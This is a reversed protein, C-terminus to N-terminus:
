RGHFIGARIAVAKPPASPDLDLSTRVQPMMVVKGNLTVTQGDRRVVIPLDQGEHGRYRARFAPAWDGRTRIDGVSILLDGPRIGAAEGAGGPVLSTVRVGNSDLATGVGMRPERTTDATFSLGALKFVQAYPYPDRGDVYHAYFDDFPRGGAEARVAGWWENSGFGRGGRKYTSDYVDRMVKDLSHRNDSADRIIIDLMLGALSGKPYYIYGTGDKPHIWTSLSADELAVPPTASVTEIKGQTTRLFAMSDVIGGRLLALDAYYDTIGESVWLWPTPESRDYRYPVMDAPRMRKVNWAHFIEHATIGGLLPTGMLLPTYVGVHSAQHELASGGGFSSDFIVMTTYVDWPTEAFVASEVPIAKAMQDWLAHRALGQLLGAPYSALRTWKGNIQTSDLDVKGIFFPMDVLDHYNRERYTRPAGAPHMSTVVLWDPQTNVTVSAPFDLPQGEPYPFVNTGNVLLFDPRSWAMANDLTDSIYNFRVTVSRADGPRIRWTDPDLKDWGLPATGNSADFDIVNRAFDSVEYAGPTWVPISILVPEPGRVDFRMAVRVVRERAAQTDFTLDYRINSIPASAPTQQPQQARAPAALTLLLAPLPLFRRLM